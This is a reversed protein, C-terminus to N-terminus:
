VGDPNHTIGKEGCNGRERRMSVRHHGADPGASGQKLGRPAKGEGPVKAYANVSAGHHGVDVDGRDLSVFNLVSGLLFLLAVAM